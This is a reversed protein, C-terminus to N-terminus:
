LSDNIAIRGTFAASTLGGTACNQPSSTLVAVAGTVRDGLYRGSTVGGALAVGGAVTQTTYSIKTVDTPSGEWAITAQGGGGFGFVCSGSITGISTASIIGSKPLGAVNSQCDTVNGSLTYSYQGPTAGLGPTFTASGPSGDLQCVVGTPAAGVSGVLGGGAAALMGTALVLVLKRVM